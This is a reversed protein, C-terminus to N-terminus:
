TFSVSDAEFDIVDGPHNYPCDSGNKCFGYMYNCCLKRETDNSEPSAAASPKMMEDDQLFEMSPMEYIVDEFEALSAGQCHDEPIVRWMNQCLLPCSSSYDGTTTPGTPNCWICSGTNMAPLFSEPELLMPLGHEDEEMEMSQKGLTEGYGYGPMCGRTGLYYKCLDKWTQQFSVKKKAEEELNKLLLADITSLLCESESACPRLQHLFGCDVAYPTLPHEMEEERRRYVSFCGGEAGPVMGQVSDLSSSSKVAELSAQQEETSSISFAKFSEM